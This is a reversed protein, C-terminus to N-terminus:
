PRLWAVLAPEGACILALRNDWDLDPPRTHRMATVTRLVGAAEDVDRGSVHQSVYPHVAAVDVHGTVWAATASYVWTQWLPDRCEIVRTLDAITAASPDLFAALDAFANGPSRPLLAEVVEHDGPGWLWPVVAARHTAVPGLAAAFIETLSQEYQGRLSGAAYPNEATFASGTRLHHSALERGMVVAVDSSRALWHLVGTRETAWLARTITWEDSDAIRQAVDGPALDRM